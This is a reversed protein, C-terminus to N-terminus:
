AAVQMGVDHALRAAAEPSVWKVLALFNVLAPSDPKARYVNKLSTAVKNYTAAYKEHTLRSVYTDLITRAIPDTRGDPLYPLHSFVKILSLPDVETLMVWSQRIEEADYKAHLRDRIAAAVTGPDARRSLLDRVKNWAMQREVEPSVADQAKITEVIGTIELAAAVAGVLELANERRLKDYHALSKLVAKQM